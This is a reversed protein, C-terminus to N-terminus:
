GLNLLAFIINMIFLVNDLLFIGDPVVREYTPNM